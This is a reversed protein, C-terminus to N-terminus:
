RKMESIKFNGRSCWNINKDGTIKENDKFASCRKNCLNSRDYACEITSEGGKRKFSGCGYSSRLPHCTNECDSCRIETM